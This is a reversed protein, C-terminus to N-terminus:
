KTMAMAKVLPPPFGDLVTTLQRRFQDSSHELVVRKLAAGRTANWLDQDQHLAIAAAAFGGPKDEAAIDKGPTWSLQRAMLTTTVTPLGAATAELIKIPIGAAFNIPALFVRAADYMPKLDPVRGILRIGPAELKRFDRHLDGAVTMLADPMRTRIVPWVERVFWALGAWNPSETELLRGIFLFGTRNHFGPLDPCTKISHSLVYVPSTQHTRFAEAERETVCIVTHADKALM